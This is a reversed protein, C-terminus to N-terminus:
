IPEQELEYGNNKLIHWYQYHIVSSWHSQDTDYKGLWLHTGDSNLFQGNYTILYHTNGLGYRQSMAQTINELTFQAAESKQATYSITDDQIHLYKGEQSADHLYVTSKTGTGCAEQIHISLIALISVVALRYIKKDM